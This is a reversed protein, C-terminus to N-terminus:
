TWIFPETLLWFMSQEARTAYIHSWLSSSNFYALFLIKAFSIVNFPPMLLRYFCHHCFWFIGNKNSHFFVRGNPSLLSWFNMCIIIEAWPTPCGCAICSILTWHWTLHLDGSLLFTTVPELTNTTVVRWQCQVWSPEFVIWPISGWILPSSDLAYLQTPVYPCM